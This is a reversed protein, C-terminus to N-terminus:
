ACVRKSCKFRSDGTVRSDCAFQNGNLCQEADACIEGEADRVHAARM